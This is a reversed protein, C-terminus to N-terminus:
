KREVAEHARAANENKCDIIDNMKAIDSIDLTGDIIETYRCYGADLPRWLWDEGDPM